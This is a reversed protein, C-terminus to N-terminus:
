DDRRRVGRRGTRSRRGRERPMHSARFKEIDRVAEALAQHAEAQSGKLREILTNVLRADEYPIRFVGALILHALEAAETTRNRRAFQKLEALSNDLIALRLAAPLSRLEPVSRYRHPPKALRALRPTQRKSKATM